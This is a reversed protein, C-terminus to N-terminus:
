VQEVHRPDCVMYLQHGLFHSHVIDGHDRAIRELFGFPDRRFELASGLLPLGPPGPPTPRPPRSTLSTLAAIM